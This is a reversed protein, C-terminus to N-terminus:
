KMKNVSEKIIKIITEYDYSTEVPYLTNETLQKQNSPTSLLNYLSDNSKVQIENNDIVIKGQSPNILSAPSSKYIVLFMISNQGKEFYGYKETETENELQKVKITDGVNVDGYIVNTVEVDSVTYKLSLGSSQGIVIDQNKKVDIINGEIILNAHAVASDMSYYTTFDATINKKSCGIISISLIMIMLISFYKGYYTNM